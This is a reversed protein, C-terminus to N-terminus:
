QKKRKGIKVMAIKKLYVQSPDTHIIMLKDHVVHSYILRALNEGRTFCM